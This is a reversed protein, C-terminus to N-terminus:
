QGLEAVIKQLTRTIQQADSGVPFEVPKGIYVRVSGPRNFLSRVERIEYAGDIRMPVVPIKLDGALLGIGARFTQLKGDPTLDGEPFILIN